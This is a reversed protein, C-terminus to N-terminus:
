LFDNSVTCCIQLVFCFDYFIIKIACCRSSLMRYYVYVLIFSLCDKVFCILFIYRNAYALSLFQGTTAAAISKTYLCRAQPFDRAKFFANGQERLLESESNRYVINYYEANQALDVEEDKSEQILFEWQAKNEEFNKTVAELHPRLEKDLLGMKKASM